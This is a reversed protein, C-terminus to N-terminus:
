EIKRIATLEGMQAPPADKELALVVKRILEGKPASIRQVDQQMGRLRAIEAKDTYVILVASASGGYVIGVTKCPEPLTITKPAYGDAIMIGDFKHWAPTGSAIFQKKRAEALMAQNRALEIREQSLPKAESVGLEEASTKGDFIRPLTAIRIAVVNRRPVAGFSRSDISEPQGWQDLGQNDGLFFIGGPDIRSARKLCLHGDRPDKFAYIWGPVIPWWRLPICFERAGERLGYPGQMSSGQGTLVFPKGISVLELLFIGILVILAREWRAQKGWWDGLSSSAPQTVAPAPHTPWEGPTIVGPNPIGRRM